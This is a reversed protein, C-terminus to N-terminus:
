NQIFLECLMALTFVLKDVNCKVSIQLSPFIVCFVDECLPSLSFPLTLLSVTSFLELSYSKVLFPRERVKTERMGPDAPQHVLPRTSTQGLPVLRWVTRKSRRLGSVAFSLLVKKKIYTLNECIIIEIFYNM